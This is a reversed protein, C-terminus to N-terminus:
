RCHVNHKGNSQPTVVRLGRECTEKHEAIQTNDFCCLFHRIEVHQGRLFRCNNSKRIIDISFVGKRPKM